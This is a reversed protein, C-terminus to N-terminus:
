RIKHDRSHKQEKNVDRESDFAEYKDPKINGAGYKFTTSKYEYKIDMEANKIRMKVGPYAVYKASISGKNEINNLYQSLKRIKDEALALGKSYEKKATEMKKYIAAKKPSLGKNVKEEELSDMTKILQEFNQNLKAKEAEAQELKKKINPDTGSEIYTATYGDSGLRKAAVLLGAIIKGGIIGGKGTICIVRGGASVYSNIIEERAIVDVNAYVEAADIYRAAVSQNTKIRGGIIGGKCIVKGEALIECRQAIGSIIVDGQARIRFGEKVHGHVVVSGM